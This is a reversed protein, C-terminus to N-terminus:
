KGINLVSAGMGMGMKSSKIKLVVPEGKYYVSSATKAFAVLRELATVYIEAGTASDVMVSVSELNRADVRSKETARIDVYKATGSCVLASNSSVEIELDMCDVNATVTAGSSLKIALLNSIIPENFIVESGSVSIENIAKYYIKVIATAESSQSPRLSLMLTGDVSTWKFKTIESKILEVEISNQQAPIMEVCLKGSLSVNTFDSVNESKISQQAFLMTSMLMLVAIVIVKKM